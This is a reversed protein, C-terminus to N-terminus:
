LFICFYSSVFPDNDRGQVIFVQTGPAPTSGQNLDAKYPEGTFYPNTNRRVNVTLYALASACLRNTAKDCVQFSGTFTNQSKILTLSKRVYVKGSSERVGFYENFLASSTSVYSLSKYPEQFKLFLVLCM